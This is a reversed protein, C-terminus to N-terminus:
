FMDQPDIDVSWNLNRGSKQQQALSILRRTAQQVERRGKGHVLMQARFRGARRQMPAPLPGIITVGTPMHAQAALRLDRLFQEGQAADTCDSRLLAMNGAPPLSRATRDALIEIAQNHFDKTLAGQLGPHDPHHTQVIVQGPRDARGARGAVQTLLQAAREEGRFDGSFLLADMDIVGVLTVTPFHHGKTLMQTGLLICPEGGNVQDVLAQMADRGQMSDSDVRYLATMPFKERLVGEAQETGVGLTLLQESRCEPCASPIPQNHGCHHCRLRRQRRHMTLRADCHQCDAIWGCDHCQLTPAFGRRNLFLLSQEGRSLTDEVANLLGESMGAQLPQKRVDLISLKPLKSGGARETLRHHHYRGQLANHLSELSPTASGLVVPCAELQGRKVAVDRASYRFGDQQKFSGDHEEDVIILGPQALPTFIASRTGIVIHAIGTRAAEWARNRQAEGLGSHLVALEADFRQEFRAVTQPTLGIEPILVLAQKGRALCAAIMQLYVETKGSGTVGELLHCTFNDGAAAIASLAQSQQQNLTLGPRARGERPVPNLECTEVLAKDELAKLAPRKIGAGALDGQSTPGDRRLAAIAEAQRPSRALAGEALGKGHTTLQWAKIALSQHQGGKRLRTPFAATMVEGIPHQYYDAAWLCLQQLGPTLLPSTDLIAGAAKIEYESPAANELVEVLVGCLERHGFTASVRQGPQLQALEIGAPPLYDFLSRLPTPMALRLVTM